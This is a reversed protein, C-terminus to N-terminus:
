QCCKDKANLAADTKTRRIITYGTEDIASVIGAISIKSTDFKVGVTGTSYDARVDVIGPLKSVAHKVHEECTACDMGAITFNAEDINNSEVIVVKAATKPYFIQGYYPFALMLAAFITVFGLFTKTQLFSTKKDEECECDADSKKPKLKSYWAAGLVVVTLGILYPRAPELWSFASAIGGVVAILALVPTICCLSAAIAAIISGFSLVGIKKM